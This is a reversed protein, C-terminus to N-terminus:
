AKAKKLASYVADAFNYSSATAGSVGYIGLVAQKKIVEDNMYPSIYSSPYHMNYSTIEVSVIKGGAIKVSVSLSGYINYASGKYTGDRYTSTSQAKAPTTASSPAKSSTGTSTSKPISSPGVNSTGSGLTGTASVAPETYVYAGAYIAGVAATCLLLLKVGPKGPM